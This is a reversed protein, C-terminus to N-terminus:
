VVSKGHLWLLNGRACSWPVLVYAVQLHAFFTAPALFFGTWQAALSTASPVVIRERGERRANADLLRPDVPEENM